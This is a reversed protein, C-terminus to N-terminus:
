INKNAPPKNATSSKKHLYRAASTQALGMTALLIPTMLFVASLAPSAVATIVSFGLCTAFFSPKGALKLQKEGAIRFKETLTRRNGNNQM